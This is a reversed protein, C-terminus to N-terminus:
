LQKRMRIAITSYGLEEYLHRAVANHGFVNLSLDTAGKSRAQSEALLM